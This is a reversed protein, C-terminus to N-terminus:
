GSSGASHDTVLKGDALVNMGLESRRELVIIKRAAVEAMLKYAEEICDAPLLIYTSPVFDGNKDV